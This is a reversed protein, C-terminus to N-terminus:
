LEDQVRGNEPMGPSRGMIGSTYLFPIMLVFWYFNFYLTNIINSNILVAIGLGFLHIYDKERRYLKWSLLLSCFVLIAYPVFGLIGNEGLVAFLNSHIITGRRFERHLNLGRRYKLYNENELFGLTGIGWVPNKVFANLSIKYHDLRDGSSGTVLKRRAYHMVKYQITRRDRGEMEYSKVFGLAFVGAFIAAAVLVGFVVRKKWGSDIFVVATGAILLGAFSGISLSLCLAAANGILLAIFAAGRLVGNRRLHLLLFICMCIFFGNYNPDMFLGTCRLYYRYQFPGLHPPLFGAKVAQLGGLVVNVSSSVYLIPALLKNIRGEELGRVLNYLMWMVACHGALRGIFFLKDRISHPNKLVGFLCLNAGIFLVFLTFYRDWAPRHRWRVFIYISLFPLLLAFVKYITISRYNILNGISVAIVGFILVAYRM